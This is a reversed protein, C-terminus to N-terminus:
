ESGRVKQMSSEFLVMLHSKLQRKMEPSLDTRRELKEIEDTYAKLLEEIEYIVKFPKASEPPEQEDLAPDILFPEHFFDLQLDRAVVEVLFCVGRREKPMRYVVRNEHKDDPWLSEATRKFAGRDALHKEGAFVRVTLASPGRLLPHAVVDIVHARRHPEFWTRVSWPAPVFPPEYVMARYVHDGDEIAKWTEVIRQKGPIPLFAAPLKSGEPPPLALTKKKESGAAGVAAAILGILGLLLLGGIEDAM